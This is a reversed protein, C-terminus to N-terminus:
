AGGVGVQLGQDPHCARVPRHFLAKRRGFAFDPQIVLFHATPVAPVSVHGQRYRRQGIQGHQTDVCCFRRRGFFCCVASSVLGSAATASIGSVTGSTRLNNHCHSHRCGGLITCM